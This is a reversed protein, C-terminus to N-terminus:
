EINAADTERSTAGSIEEFFTNHDFELWITDDQLYGAQVHKALVDPLKPFNPLPNLGALVQPYGDIVVGVAHEGQGFVLVRPMTGAPVQVIGLLIRLDYLPVLNGRLNILGSFGPPMNPLPAVSVVGLVESGADPNILLGWDGVRFGYRARTELRVQGVAALNAGEAPEFQALAVNPLQWDVAQGEPFYTEPHKM